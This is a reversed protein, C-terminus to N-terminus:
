DNKKFDLEYNLNKLIRRLTVLSPESEGNEIQRIFERSLNSRRALEAQSIGIKKRNEKIMKALKNMKMDLIQTNM